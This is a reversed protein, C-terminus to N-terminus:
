KREKTPPPCNALDTALKRAIERNRVLGLHRRGSFLSGTFATAISSMVRRTRGSGARQHGEGIRVCPM